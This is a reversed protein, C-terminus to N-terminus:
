PCLCAGDRARQRQESSPIGPGADRVFVRATGPASDISVSVPQQGYKLANDILNVLVQEIRDPDGHVPPPPEPADVSVAPAETRARAVETASRIVDRLDVTRSEIPM